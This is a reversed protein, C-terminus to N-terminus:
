CILGHKLPVLAAAGCRIAEIDEPYPKLLSFPKSDCLREPWLANVTGPQYKNMDIFLDFGHNERNKRGQDM